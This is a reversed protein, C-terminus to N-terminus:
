ESGPRPRKSSATGWTRIIPAFVTRAPTFGSMLYGEGLLYEM